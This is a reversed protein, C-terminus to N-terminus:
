NDLTSFANELTRVVGQVVKRAARCAEITGYFLNLALGMMLSAILTPPAIIILALALLIRTM